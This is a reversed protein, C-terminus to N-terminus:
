SASSHALTGSKETTVEDFTDSAAHVSGGVSARGVRMFAAKPMWCKRYELLNPTGMVNSKAVSAPEVVNATVAHSASAGPMKGHGDTPTELAGVLTM